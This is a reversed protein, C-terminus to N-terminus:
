HLSFPFHIEIRDGEKWERHLKLWTGPIMEVKLEVGNIKVGYKGVAWSSIRFDIDSATKGETHIVFEFYQTKPCLSLNEVEMSRGGIEFAAKSPLYQAVYIGHQDKYYLLTVYEAVDQPFTGTCCQWEFSRGNDHLRRDEVTKIGGNVFYDAYYM